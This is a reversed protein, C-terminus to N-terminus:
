KVAVRWKKELAYAQYAMLGMYGTVALLWISRVIFAFDNEFQLMKFYMIASRILGFAAVCYVPQNNGLSLDGVEKHQV